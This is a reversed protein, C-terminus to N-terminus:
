RQSPVDKFAFYRKSMFGLNETIVVGIEAQLNGLTNGEADHFLAQYQNYKLNKQMSDQLFKYDEGFREEIEHLTKLMFVTQKDSINFGSSNHDHTKGQKNCYM